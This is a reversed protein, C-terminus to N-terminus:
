DAQLNISESARAAKQWRAQLRLTVKRLLPFYARVQSPAFSAMVMRRQRQWDEGESTSLGQPLGLETAIETIRPSRRFGEPRDLLVAALLDHDAIVLVQARGMKMQYLTGFERAWREFDQHVSALKVQFANGVM